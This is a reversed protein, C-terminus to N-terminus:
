LDATSFPGAIVTPESTVPDYPAGKFTYEVHGDVFFEAVCYASQLGTPGAGSSGDWMDSTPIGYFPQQLPSSRIRYIKLGGTTSFDQTTADAAGVHHMDGDWWGYNSIGEGVLFECIEEL